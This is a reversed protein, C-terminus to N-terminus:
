AYFLEFEEENVIDKVAEEWWGNPNNQDIQQTLEQTEAQVAVMKVEEEETAECCIDYLEDFQALSLV